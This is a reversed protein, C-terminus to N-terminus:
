LFTKVQVIILNEWRLQVCLPANLHGTMTIVFGSGPGSSDVAAGLLVVVAGFLVGFHGAYNLICIPLLVCEVVTRKDIAVHVNRRHRAAPNLLDTSRQPDIGILM